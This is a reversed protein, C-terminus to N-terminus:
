TTGEKPALSSSHMAHHLEDPSSGKRPWFWGILAATVPPLGWVVAWPTFISGIFLGSLAVATLFPWHSPGLLEKRNDPDGDIVYTVLVERKDSAVGVVVPQTDFPAEDWLPYGSGVTPLPAFNYPPPPSTTAWELSAAHWPDPAAVAGRRWAYVVNILFVLLGLALVGAGITVLLNLPGWGTEAAYTYVRRPMGYLGLVHQPFFTLNFGIFVTAFGIAGLRESPMRGIMKPLWYHMAGLLPFVAGGILVYHFHAVIFFTDHVQLDLPVAALMVGSLGGILFVAFFGLAYLM